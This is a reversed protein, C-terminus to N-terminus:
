ENLSDLRRVLKSVRGASVSRRVSHSAQRDEPLCINRQRRLVEREVESKGGWIGLPEYHLSYELCGKVVECEKCLRKAFEVDKRVQGAPLIPYFLTIDLGKCAAKQIDFFDEILKTVM